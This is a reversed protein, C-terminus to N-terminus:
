RAGTPAIMYQAEPTFQVFTQDFNVVIEVNKEIFVHRINTSCKVSLRRWDQPIKQSISNKRVSFNISDLTRTLIQSLNSAKETTFHTLYFLTNPQCDNRERLMDYVEARTAPDGSEWRDKVFSRIEQKQAAFKRDKGIDHHKIRKTQTNINIINDNKKALKFRRYPNTSNRTDRLSL